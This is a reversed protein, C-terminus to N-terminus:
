PGSYTNLPTCIFDLQKLIIIRVISVLFFVVLLLEVLFFLGAHLYSLLLQGHLVM